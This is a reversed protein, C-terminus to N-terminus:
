PKTRLRKRLSVGGVVLIGLGLAFVGFGTFILTPGFALDNEPTLTAREGIRFVEVSQGVPFDSEALQPSREVSFSQEKGDLRYSIELEIIPATRRNARQGTSVEKTKEVHSKVQGPLPGLPDEASAWETVGFLGVSLGTLLAVVGVLMLAFYQSTTYSEALNGSSLGSKVFVGGSAIICLCELRIGKQRLLNDSIFFLVSNTRTAQTRMDHLSSVFGPLEFLEVVDFLVVGVFLTVTGAEGHPSAAGTAFLAHV